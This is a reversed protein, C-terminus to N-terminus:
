AELLGMALRWLEHNIRVDERIARIPRTSTARARQTRGVLGGRMLHEQVMNLTHWLDEGRDITRRPTLLQEPTIPLYTQRAFRVALAQTAFALREHHSMSRAAMHEVVERVRAFDHILTLAGDVVNQVINGRHQVHIVGFDGIRTLLGNCCVPRYLGAVLQYASSGDHANILVIQPVADVLSVRAFEYQFTLMHRVYQPDRGRAGGQRAAIARFGAELLATVLTETSIFRYRTGVGEAPHASFAAPVNRRLDDLPIAPLFAHSQPDNM